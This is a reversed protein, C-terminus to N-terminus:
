LGIIVEELMKIVKQLSFVEVVILYFSSELFKNFGSSFTHQNYYNRHQNIFICKLRTIIIKFEWDLVM